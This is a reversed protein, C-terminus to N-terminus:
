SQVDVSELCIEVKGDSKPDDGNVANSKEAALVAAAGAKTLGLDGGADVPQADVSASRKSSNNNINAFGRPRPSRSQGVGNMRVLANEPSVLASPSPPM